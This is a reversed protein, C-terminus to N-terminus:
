AIPIMCECKKREKIRMEMKLCISLVRARHRRCREPEMYFDEFPSSTRTLWTTGCHSRSMVVDTMVANERKLSEISIYLM